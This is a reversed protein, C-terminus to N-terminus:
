CTPCDIDGGISRSNWTLYKNQCAQSTTSRTIKAEHETYQETLRLVKAELDSIELQMAM